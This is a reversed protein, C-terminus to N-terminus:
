IFASAKLFIIGILLAIGFSILTGILIYETLNRDTAKNLDGFRFVSKAALLFGIGEWNNTVIFGFVFLRELIGIYKGASSLEEKKESKINAEWNSLIINILISSPNLLFMISVIGLLVNETILDQLNILSGETFYWILAIVLFHLLQDFLFWRRRKKLNEKKGQFSLKCADIIFHSVLITLSILLAKFFPISVLFLLGFTLVGHIAAHAYLYKSKVKHKEKHQVWKFPQLFFDGLLHVFILVLIIM